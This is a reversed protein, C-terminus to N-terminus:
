GRKVPYGVVLWDPGLPKMTTRELRWCGSLAAAGRGQVPSEAQGGGIILPAIFGYVKDVLGLDFLSGLVRGGGEVLLSVANMEGLKAVVADLDVKGDSPASTQLVEAGANGLREVDQRAVTDVTFVIVRGPQQLTLSNPPTRCQSDLIVRIPQQDLPSGTEDRVTLQPDDALITNIGVMVADCGRRLEQVFGRAHPSTIWKSDGTHTAIKGDLSMAFKASVFPLGTTIHKAFAEYLGRASEEEQRVTVKIGAARLQDCGSGAVRPNPDLIAVDVREIKAAIIADTCPPTRGHFCCPELTTYLTAGQCAEGAQQMAVIEAHSQGPPRTAGRGVIAGDKVVIAGVAPNPSTTGVVQWALDVAQRMHDMKPQEVLGALEPSSM